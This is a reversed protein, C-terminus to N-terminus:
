QPAQDLKELPLKTVFVPEVFTVDLEKGKGIFWINGNRKDMLLVGQGGRYLFMPAVITVHDFRGADAHATREPNVYPQLAIIGLFVAILFLMAHQM